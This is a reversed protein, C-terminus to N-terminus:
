SKAGTLFVPSSPTLLYCVYNDVKGDRLRSSIGMAHRATHALDLSMNVAVKQNAIVQSELKM